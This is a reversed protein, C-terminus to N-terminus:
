YGPSHRAQNLLLSASTCCFGHGGGKGGDTGPLAVAGTGVKFGSEALPGTDDGTKNHKDLDFRNYLLQECLFVQVPVPVRVHAHM